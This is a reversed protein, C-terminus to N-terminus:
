APIGTPVRAMPAAPAFFAASSATPMRANFSSRSRPASTAKRSFCVAATSPEASGAHTGRADKKRPAGDSDHTAALEAPHEGDGRAPHTVANVGEAGTFVGGRTLERVQLDGGAIVILSRHALEGPAHIDEGELKLIDRGLCDIPARLM